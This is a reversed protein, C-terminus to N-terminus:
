DFFFLGKLAILSLFSFRPSFISRVFIHLQEFRWVISNFIIFPDYYWLTVELDKNTYLPSKVERM